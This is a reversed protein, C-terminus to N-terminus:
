VHAACYAQCAFRPFSLTLVRYLGTDRMGEGYHLDNFVTIQFTGEATFRLPAFHNLSAQAPAAVIGAVLVLIASLLYYHRVMAPQLTM